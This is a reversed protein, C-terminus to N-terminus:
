NKQACLKHYFSDRSINKVYQSSSNNVVIIDDLVHITFDTGVLMVNPVYSAPSEKWGNPNNSFWSVLSKHLPSSLELIRTEGDGCKLTVPDSIELVFEKETSCGVIVLLLCMTLGNRIVSCVKLGVIYQM